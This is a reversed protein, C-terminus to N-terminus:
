KRKQMNSINDHLRGRRIAIDTLLSTRSIAALNVEQYLRRTRCVHHFDLATALNTWFDNIFDLPFDLPQRKALPHRWTGDQDIVAFQMRRHLRCPEKIRNHRRAFEEAFSRQCTILPM